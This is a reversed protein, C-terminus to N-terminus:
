SAVVQPHGEFIDCTEFLYALLAQTAVARAPAVSGVGAVMDYLASMIAAPGLAQSKLYKYRARFVQAITEGVLPNNHQNLYSSVLHANQWGGSILSRWHSPLKNFALKEPPVPRITTVDFEVEDAAAAVGAILARLESLQLNQADQSTAVVGLLQEIRSHDLSFVREQFGDLGIFGFKRQPESKGLADLTEVAEIPLGDVLNHVMHWEKMISPIAKLAKSFDIAMKKILYSVKGGTGNLAGYCQFVQGSTVLYGDCGKDGLKGFPRVRVFDSGHLQGMLNSFFDQFADGSCKRLKLELAVSWWFKQEATMM